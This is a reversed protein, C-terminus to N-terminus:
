TEDLMKLLRVKSVAEVTKLSQAFLSVRFEEIKWRFLLIPDNVEQLDPDIKALKQAYVKLVSLVEAMAQKDRLPQRLLKDGRQVMAELYVPYRALWYLPVHTIFNKVFLGEMQQQMDKISPLLDASPKSQLKNLQTIVKTRFVIINMVLSLLNNAKSLFQGRKQSVAAEFAVQTHIQDAQGGWLENAVALLIHDVVEETDKWTALIKKDGSKLPKKFQRVPDKLQLLALRAIGFHHQHKAAMLTAFLEIAVCEQKDVLAPYYIFELTGKQIQVEKPLDGFDWQTINQRELPHSGVLAQTHVVKLQEYIVRLDDGQALVKANKDLVAFHLRLYAPLTKGRFSRKEEKWVPPLLLTFDEDKIISLTELPVQLTAGDDPAKPDFKYVVKFAQDRVLLQSPYQNLTDQVASFTSAQAKSFVLFEDSTEKLWHLMSPVSNISAPIREDYFRFLFSEDVFYYDKRIRDSLQELERVTQQNKLYFPARVQANGEVLGERIFIERAGIPDIKEYNIRRQHYIELGFLTAREFAVVYGTKKEFHPEVVQRKLLHSAVAEIMKPEIAANIRAYTKTTHVIECAMLWAPAKKFLASGPHIYFTIGRAGNYERKEAKVGITDLLGTLLAQHILHDPAPIQNIKFDQEKVIEKLQAHVDFWECIRLFSLFNTRCLHRFQQHSLAKRNEFVFDWLKLYSLFDSQEHIFKEHASDSKEQHDHPRERPDMISLASVIVLVEKVAGYTNAGILMRGLKPEIPIRSLTRGLVTIKKAQDVAGLRELLMFGDKIFRSDPPDLFPFQEIKSLKLSLMKLIVGALNTRLIEPETFLPRMQFDDISYLRYCIGPSVRGCRGKRQECSAQSAPEIPLRQMKNRYNYRSLRVTGADIVFRINPVTISTEAVNTAVIIKRQPSPEFILQQDKVSQRGYLPLLKTNPLHLKALEEVVERIEKEGSQFILIDGPGNEYALQVARVVPVTPDDGESEPDIYHTQVPYTRGEVKILPANNFFRSFRDVDITASTIIVKLSPRKQLLTKLYGLLFDINLSREHAEDIIICDYQKLNQDTQTQALLIGDTMIKIYTDSSVKETFRIQYGVYTGLASELESAIRMATSKAAIRRPQTHGIMAQIGFGAELCMKPLQTTKGSGTEGAVIIVPHALLADIINQKEAVIPLDPYKIKPVNAKRKEFDM